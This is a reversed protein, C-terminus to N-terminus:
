RKGRSRKSPNIIERVTREDRGFYEAARRIAWKERIGRLLDAREEPEIGPDDPKAERTYLSVYRRILDHLVERHLMRREAPHPTREMWKALTDNPDSMQNCNPQM